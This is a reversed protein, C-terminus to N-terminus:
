ARWPGVLDTDTGTGTGTGEHGATTRYSVTSYGAREGVRGKARSKFASSTRRNKREKQLMM